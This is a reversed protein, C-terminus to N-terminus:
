RQHLIVIKHQYKAMKRLCIQMRLKQLISDYDKKIDRIHKKIEIYM